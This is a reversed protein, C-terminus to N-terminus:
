MNRALLGVRAPEFLKQGFRPLELTSGGRPLQALRERQPATRRQDIEGVVVERLVLDLPELLQAKRAGLPADVELEREAMVVIEDRLEFREDPRM